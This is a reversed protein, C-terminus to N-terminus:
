TWNFVWCGFCLVSISISVGVFGKGFFLLFTNSYIKSIYNSKSKSNIVHKVVLNHKITTCELRADQALIQQKWWDDELHQWHACIFIALGREKGGTGEVQVEGYWVQDALCFDKCLLM